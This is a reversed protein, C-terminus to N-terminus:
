TYKAFKKGTKKQTLFYSMSHCEPKWGKIVNLPLATQSQKIAFRKKTILHWETLSAFAQWENNNTAM